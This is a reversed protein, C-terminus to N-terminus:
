SHTGTGIGSTTNPCDLGKHCQQLCPPRSPLVIPHPHPSVPLLAQWDKGSSQGSAPPGSSASSRRRMMRSAPPRRTLEATGHALKAKHHAVGEGVLHQRLDLEPGVRVLVEGPDVKGLFTPEKGAGQGLTVHGPSGLQAQESKLIKVPNGEPCFDNEGNLLPTSLSAEVCPIVRTALSPPSFLM